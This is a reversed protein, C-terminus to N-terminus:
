FLGLGGLFLVMIAAVIWDWLVVLLDSMSGLVFEM